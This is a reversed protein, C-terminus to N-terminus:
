AGAGGATVALRLPRGGAAWQGLVTRIESVTRAGIGTCRLLKEDPMAELTVPDYIEYRALAGAIRGNLGLDIL